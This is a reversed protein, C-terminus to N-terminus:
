QIWHSLASYFIFVRFPFSAHCLYYYYYYRIARISHLDKQSVFVEHALVCWKRVFICVFLRNYLFPRGAIHTFLGENNHQIVIVRKKRAAASHDM